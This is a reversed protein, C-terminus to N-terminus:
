PKIIIWRKLDQLATKIERLIMLISHHVSLLVTQGANLDSILLAIHNLKNIQEDKVTL